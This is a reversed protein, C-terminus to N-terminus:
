LHAYFLSEIKTKANTITKRPSLQVVRLTKSCFTSWMCNQLISVASEESSKFALLLLPSKANSLKTELFKFTILTHKEGQYGPMVTIFKPSVSNQPLGM